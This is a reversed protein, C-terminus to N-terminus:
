IHLLVPSPRSNSLAQLNIAKDSDQKSAKGPRGNGLYYILYAECEINKAISGWVLKIKKWVM